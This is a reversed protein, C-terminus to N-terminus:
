FNDWAPKTKWSGQTLLQCQPQDWIGALIHTRVKDTRTVLAEFQPDMATREVVGMKEKADQVTRNFFTGADGVASGAVGVASKFYNMRRKKKKYARIDEAVFLFTNLERTIYTTFHLM